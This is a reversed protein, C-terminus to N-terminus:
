GLRAGLSYLFDVCELRGAQSALMIGNSGSSNRLNIDPLLSVIEVLRTLNGSHCNLWFEEYYDKFLRVNKDETSVIFCFKDEHIITGPLRDSQVALIDAKYISWGGFKPMQYGRFAFARVMNRVVSAPNSTDINNRSFDISKISNYRYIGKEQPAVSYNKDLIRNVNKKFIAYGNILYRDYLDRATDNSDIEFLLQDIIPGSDIGRDIRHLTVGSTTDGNLIPWTSTYVGRYKPLASFHINFLERSSFSEPDFIESYQLSFLKLDGIKRIEEISVQPVKRELSFKRFSRQWTDVGDDEKCSLFCLELDPRKLSILYALCDVAINNKGALCVVSM